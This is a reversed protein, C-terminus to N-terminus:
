IACASFRTCNWTSEGTLAVIGLRRQVEESQVGESRAFRVAEGLASTITSLHNKTCPICAVDKLTPYPNKVVSVPAVVVKTDTYESRIQSLRKELEKSASELQRELSESMVGECLVLPAM